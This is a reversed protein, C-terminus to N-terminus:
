AGGRVTGEEDILRSLADRFQRADNKGILKNTLADFHDPDLVRVLNLTEILAREVEHRALVGGDKHLSTHSLGNVLKSLSPSIPVNAKRILNDLRTGFNVSNPSRFETFGELVKRCYNGTGLDLQGGDPGQENDDQLREFAKLLMYFSLWYENTLRVAQDDWKRCRTTQESKHFIDKYIEYFIATPEAGERSSVKDALRNQLIRLYTHSHTFYVISAPQIKLANRFHDTIFRDIALLRAEDLEAGLDDFAIVSNKLLAKREESFFEACFYLLSVLKKEGESMGKAPQGHRTIRYGEGVGGVSVQLTKDGLIIRLSKNLFKATQQTSSVSEKLESLEEEAVKKAELAAEEEKRAEELKENISKWSSGDAACCHKKLAQVADEKNKSHNRIECQASAHARRLTEFAEQLPAPNVEPRPDIFHAFPDDVRRKLLQEAAKMERLYKQAKLIAENKQAPLDSVYPSTSFEIVELRSVFAQMASIRRHM